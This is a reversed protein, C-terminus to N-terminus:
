ISIFKCHIKCNQLNCDSFTTKEGNEANQELIFFIQFKSFGLLRGSTVDNIHSHNGHLCILCWTIGILQFYLSLENHTGFILDIPHITDFISPLPGFSVGRIGEHLKKLSVGELTLPTAALRPEM